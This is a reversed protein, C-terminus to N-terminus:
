RLRQNAAAPNAWCCPEISAGSSSPLRAAQSMTRRGVSRAPSTPTVYIKDIPVKRAQELPRDRLIYGHRDGVQHRYHKEFTLIAGVDPSSESLLALSRQVAHLEDVVIRHRM